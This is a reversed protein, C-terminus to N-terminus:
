LLERFFSTDILGKNKNGTELPHLKFLCGLGNGVDYSGSLM